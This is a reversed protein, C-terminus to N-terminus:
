VLFIGKTLDERMQEGWSSLKEYDIILIDRYAIEQDQTPVIPTVEHRMKRDDLYISDFTEKMLFSPLSATANPNDAYLLSEGGTINTRGIFHMSIYDHGDRHPGEPAPSGGDKDLPSVRIQHM